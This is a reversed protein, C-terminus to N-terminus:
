KNIIKLNIKGERDLKPIVTFSFNYIFKAKRKQEIAQSANIIGICMEILNYKEM